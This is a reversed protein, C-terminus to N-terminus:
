DKTKQSPTLASGLRRKFMITDGDIEWSCDGDAFATAVEALDAKNAKSVYAVEYHETLDYLPFTM